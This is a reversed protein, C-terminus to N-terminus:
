KKRSFPKIEGRLQWCPTNAPTLYLSGTKTNLNLEIIHTTGDKPCEAMIQMNWGTKTKIAKSVHNIVHRGSSPVDIFGYCTDDIGDTEDLGIYIPDTGATEIYIKVNGNNWNGDFESANSLTFLSSIALFTIFLICRKM